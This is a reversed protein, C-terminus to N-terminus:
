IFHYVHYKVLCLHIFTERNWKFHAWSNIIDSKRLHQFSAEPKEEWILIIIFKYHVFTQLENLIDCAKSILQRTYFLIFACVDTIFTYISLTSFFSFEGTMTFGGVFLGIDRGGVMITESRDSASRKHKWAAWIGVLLIMLYFIIIALLGSVHIVM